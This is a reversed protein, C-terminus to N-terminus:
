GSARVASPRFVCTIVACEMDSVALAVQAGLRTLIHLPSSSCAFCAETLDDFEPEPPTDLVAYADLQKQAVVREDRLGFGAEASAM